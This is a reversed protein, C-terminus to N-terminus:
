ALSLQLSAITLLCVGACTAAEADGYLVFLLLSRPAWPLVRAVARIPWVQQHSIPIPRGCTASSCRAASVTSVCSVRKRNTLVLHCDSRSLAGICTEGAPSGGGNCCHGAQLELCAHSQHGQLQHLSAPAMAQLADACM